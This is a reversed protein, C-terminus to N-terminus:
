REWHLVDRLVSWRKTPPQADLGLVWHDYLEQVTGDKKKLEIWNSLFRATELDRRAVPYALPIKIVIPQPVAVAFSPYLLTQFSGREATFALADVAPGRGEFFDTVGEETFDVPVTTVAPFERHVLGLLYQLNPVAVRLGPTGRIWEASSFDSRRYSPVVFALTEDLYSSSFVVWASRRTTLVVGAMVLDVQGAEAVEEPRERPVPAFELTVGLEGCAQLGHGRRLWRAGEQREPLQLAVRGRHLGGPPVRAGARGTDRVPRCAPDALAGGAARAPRRGEGFAFLLLQMSMAVRDKDYAGVGTARILLATVALSAATAGACMLAYRAIRALSFRLQGDDRLERGPGPRGHADRCGPHRVALQHRRDRPVAPVHRRPVRFMDLLFPIAVNLNGFFVMVGTTALAPYRSPPISSGTFWAAFLVFSLSLLKATHPFNFSAPIM